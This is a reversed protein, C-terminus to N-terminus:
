SNLSIENSILFIPLGPPIWLCTALEIRDQQETGDRPSIPFEKTSHEWFQTQVFGTVNSLIDEACGVTNQACV